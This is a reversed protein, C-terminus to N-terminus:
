FTRLRLIFRAGLYMVGGYDWVVRSWSWQFSKIGELGFPPCVTDELVTVIEDIGDVLTEMDEGLHNRQRAYYDVHIIHTEQITGGKFTTVHTGSEAAVVECAEPYVQLTPTDNMGETLENFNQWRSISPLVLLTDRIATCM